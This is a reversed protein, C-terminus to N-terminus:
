GGSRRRKPKAALASSRPARSRRGPGIEAAADIFSRLVRNVQDSTKFTRAVDPELVIVNTGSAYRSAYVGRKAGAFDVENPIDAKSM